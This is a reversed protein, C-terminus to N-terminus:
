LGSMEAYLMVQSSLLCLKRHCYFILINFLMFLILEIGCYCKFHGDLCISFANSTFIRVAYANIYPRIKVRKDHM